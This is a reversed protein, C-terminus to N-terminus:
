RSWLVAVTLVLVLVWAVREMIPRVGRHLTVFGDDDPKM